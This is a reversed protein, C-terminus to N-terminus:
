QQSQWRTSIVPHHLHEAFDNSIFALPPPLTPSSVPALEAHKPHDIFPSDQARLWFTVELTFHMVGATFYSACYASKLDNTNRLTFPM